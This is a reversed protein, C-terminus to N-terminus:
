GPPRRAHARRLEVVALFTSGAFGFGALWRSGHAQLLDVGALAGIVLFAVAVALSRRMSRTMIIKMM